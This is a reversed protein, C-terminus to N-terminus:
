RQKLLKIAESGLCAVAVKMMERSSPTKLRSLPSRWFTTLPWLGPRPSALALKYFAQQWKESITERFEKAPFYHYIDNQKVLVKLWGEVEGFDARTPSFTTHYDLWRHIDLQLATPEIKIRELAEKDIRRLTHAQAYQHKRSVSGATIRYDILVENLNAIPFYESARQWLRFDEAHTYGPEYRLQHRELMGKRLMVSSHIMVNDFLLRCSVKKPDTPPRFIVDQVEGFAQAWAGCIGVEPFADLFGVQKELRTSRSIDDCDMRAIYEGLAEDLGRNLSAILGRNSDNRILRIRNDSFGEMIARSNDVSGDDVILLEFNAYTQRLISEIAEAVFAEGNYVPMLVSVRPFQTM